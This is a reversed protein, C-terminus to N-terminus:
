LSPCFAPNAEKFDQEDFIGQMVMNHARGYAFPDTRNNQHDQYLRALEHAKADRQALDKIPNAKRTREAAAFTPEPRKFQVVEGTKRQPKSQSKPQKKAATQTM